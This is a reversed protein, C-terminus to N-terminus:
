FNVASTLALPILCAWDPLPQHPSTMWTDTPGCLAPAPPLALQEGRNQSGVCVINYMTAQIKVPM